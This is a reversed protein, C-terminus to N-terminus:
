RRYLFFGSRLRGSRSRKVSLLLGCHMSWNRHHSDLGDPLLLRCHVNWISQDIAHCQLLLRGHVVCLGVSGDHQLLQRDSEAYLEGARARPLVFRSSMDDHQLQRDPLVHWQRVLVSDCDVLGRRLLVRRQVSRGRRESGDPQLVIGRRVPDAHEHREGPLLAIDAVGDHEPEAGPLVFSGPMDAADGIDVGYSLLLRRQLRGVRGILWDCQLLLRGHVVHLQGPREVRLIWICPV